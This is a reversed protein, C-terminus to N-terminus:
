FFISSFSVQNSDRQLISKRESETATGNIRSHRLGVIRHLMTIRCPSWAGCKLAVIKCYVNRDCNTTFWLIKIDKQRRRRRRQRRHYSEYPVTMLKLLKKIENMKKMSKERRRCASLSNEEKKGFSLDCIIQSRRKQWLSMLHIVNWGNFWACMRSYKMYSNWNTATTKM